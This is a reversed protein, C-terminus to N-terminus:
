MQTEWPAVQGHIVIPEGAMDAAVHNGEVYAVSYGPDWPCTGTNRIRWSKTFRSGRRLTPPELMNQDDFSLHEVLAVGDVCTDAPVATAPPTPTPTPMPTATPTRTAPRATDTATPVSPSATAMPRPSTLTNVLVYGLVVAIVTGVVGVALLAATQRKGVM